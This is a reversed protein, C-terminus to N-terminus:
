LSDHVVYVIGSKDLTLDEPHMKDKCYAFFVTDELYFDAICMALRGSMRILCILM